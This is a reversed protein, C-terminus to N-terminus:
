HLSAPSRRVTQRLRRVDTRNWLLVAFALAVSVAHQSASRTFELTLLAQFVTLLLLTISQSIYQGPMGRRGSNELLAAVDLPHFM